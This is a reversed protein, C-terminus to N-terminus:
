PGNGHPAACRARGRFTATLWALSRAPAREAHASSEGAGNPGGLIIRQGTPVLRWCRFEVDEWTLLGGVGHQFFVERGTCGQM